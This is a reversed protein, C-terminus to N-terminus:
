RFSFFDNLSNLVIKREIGNSNTYSITHEIKPLNLLYKQIDELVTPKLTELFNALQENTYEKAEYVEEGDYIAQICRIILQFLHDKELTQYEQDDYLSAPPYGMVIGIKNTIKINNDIKKPYQVEVKNLDIDFDYTKGDDLDKYSVSIINDVSAARLKLYIYELDFIALKNINLDENLSCNNVIQKIAGLIDSFNDAEKAMLLIKEEKVLFPRFSQKKKTSPVTIYVIPYDVKPLEKM